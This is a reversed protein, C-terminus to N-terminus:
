DSPAITLAEMFHAEDRDAVVEYILYESGRHFTVVERPWPEAPEYEQGDLPGGCLSLWPPKM